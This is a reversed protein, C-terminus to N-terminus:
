LAAVGAAADPANVGLIPPAPARGLASSEAAQAPPAHRAPSGASSLGVVVAVAAAAALGGAPAWVWLRRRGPTRPPAEFGRALREDLSRAWDSDILPRDAALLLALEALEAHQPDVAEGALTADIAAMAEHEIPQM